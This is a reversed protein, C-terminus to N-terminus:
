EDIAPAPDANVRQVGGFRLASVHLVSITVRVDVDTCAHSVKEEPMVRQAHLLGYEVCDVPRLKSKSELVLKHTYIRMSEALQDTLLSSGEDVCAGLGGGKSSAKSPQMCPARSNDAELARVVTVM